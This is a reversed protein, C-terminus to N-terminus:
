PEATARVRLRFKDILACPRFSLKTRRFNANGLDQEFNFHHISSGCRRALEQFMCAYIGDYRSRGKAFRVAWVGDNLKETILFGAAEGDVRYVWGRLPLPTAAASLCALAERCAGVDAADSALRRDLCWGELVETALTTTHLDLEEIDLRGLERLREVAHRKSGLGVRSYDLFASSEYLYDSEDRRSEVEIREPDFRAVVSQPLPYFWAANGQVHSLTNLSVEAIDCLPILIRTGDYTRGEILELDGQRLRYEHVARFLYLNSFTIDSPVREAQPERLRTLASGIHEALDLTLPIAVEPPASSIM